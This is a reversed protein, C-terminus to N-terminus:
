STLSSALGFSALAQAVSETEQSSLPQLPPLVHPECLGLAHMGAKLAALSQALSRNQQVITNLANLKEQLAQAREWQKEQAAQYFDRWLAPALNGSSPVAGDFGLQMAMASQAAVGMFLSFDPRGGFREAVSKIREADNESDKYGIMNPLTSLRDLVDLPISMHTTLPMNYIVVSGAIEGAVLQFYRLMEEANLLYYSPLIAVVADAGYELYKKGANISTAACNDSIGAYVLVKGAAENVAIQVLRERESHPISPAEGTTGLVFCHIGNAVFSQVIRRVASEDVAGKRTFPTAMPVM